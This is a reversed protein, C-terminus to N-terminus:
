QRCEGDYAKQAGAKLRECDNSHPKGACDCVPSFDATCMEPRPVCTGSLDRVECQNAPRECVLGADCVLNRIGGCPEGEKAGASCALLALLLGLRKM